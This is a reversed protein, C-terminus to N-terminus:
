RGDLVEWAYGNIIEEQTFQGYALSYYCPERDTYRPTEIKSFDLEAIPACANMSDTFVPIGRATAEITINSNFAVIAHTDNWDIPTSTDENDSPGPMLRGLEDIKSDPNYGKNRVVIERDTNEKLIKLTNDLWSEQNFMVAISHTPPCIVIKSGTKKWPEINFPFYKKFRDNSRDELFNKTHGNKTIRLIGPYKRSEGWYPRDMFYFNVWNQQAWNYVVNTGRLIGFLVVKTADKQAIVQDWPLIKSGPLGQQAALMYRETAPRDTKSIYIM